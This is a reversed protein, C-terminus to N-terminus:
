GRERLYYMVLWNFAWKEARTWDFTEAFPRMKPLDDWDDLGVPDLKRYMGEPQCETVCVPRDHQRCFGCIELNRRKAQPPPDVKLGLEPQNM